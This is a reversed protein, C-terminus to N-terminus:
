SPAAWARSRRMADRANVARRILWSRSEIWAWTSTSMASMSVRSSGSTFVSSASWSGTRTMQSRMPTGCSSRSIILSHDSAIAANM